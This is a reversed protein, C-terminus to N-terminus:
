NRTAIILQHTGVLNYEMTSLLEPHNSGSVKIAQNLIRQYNPQLTLLNLNIIEIKGFGVVALYKSLEINGWYHDIFDATEGSNTKVSHHYRLPMTGEQDILRNQYSISSQVCGSVGDLTQGLIFLQGGSKLVTSIRQFIDEIVSPIGIMQLAFCLLAKDYQEGDNTLPIADHDLITSFEVNGLDKYRDRAISILSEERDIGRVFKAGLSATRATSQGSSSGFDLVTQGAPNLLEYLFIYAPIDSIVIERDIFEFYEANRERQDM